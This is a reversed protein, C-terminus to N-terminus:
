SVNIKMDGSTSNLKSWFSIIILNFLLFMLNHNILVFLSANRSSFSNKRTKM